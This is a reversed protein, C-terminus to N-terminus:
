VLFYTVSTNQNIGGAGASFGGAPTILINGLTDVGFSMITESGGNEGIIPAYQTAAPRVAAPMGTITYAGGTTVVTHAFFKINLIVANGIVTYKIPTTGTYSDPTYTITGTYGGSTAFNGTAGSIAGDIKINYCEINASPDFAQNTLKRVSM